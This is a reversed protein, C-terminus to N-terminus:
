ARGEVIIQSPTNRPPRADAFTFAEINRGSVEMARAAELLHAAVARLESPTARLIVEGLEVPLLGEKLNYTSPYGTLTSKM